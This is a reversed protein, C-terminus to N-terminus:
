HNDAIGGSWAEPWPDYDNNLGGDDIMDKADQISVASHIVEGDKHSFKFKSGFKIAWPDTEEEIIYGKYKM